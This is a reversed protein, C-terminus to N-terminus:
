FLECIEKPTDVVTMAGAKELEDRTGYGFTVGITKIGVANAGEVDYHRDGVMVAKKLDSVMSANSDLNRRVVAM